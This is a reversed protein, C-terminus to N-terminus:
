WVDHWYYVGLQGDLVLMQAVPFNVRFGLSTWICTTYFSNMNLHIPLMFPSMPMGSFMFEHFVGIVGFMYSCSVLSSM